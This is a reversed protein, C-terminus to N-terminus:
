GLPSRRETWVDEIEEVGRALGSGRIAEEGRGEEPPPRWGSAMISFGYTSGICAPVGAGDGGDVNEVFRTTM